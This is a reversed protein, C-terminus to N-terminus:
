ELLKSKLKDIEFRSLGKALLYNEITEYKKRLYTLVMEMYEPKVYLLFNPIGDPITKAIKIMEYLYVNSVEYDAYIDIDSVGALLLLIASIIGTRDKGEQCHFLINSDSNAMTQFINTIAQRNELMDYYNRIVDDESYPVEFQVSLPFNYCSFRSDKEFANPSKSVVNENRLDIITKFNEKVLFIKTEDSIKCPADSRIFRGYQIIGGSVTPTYGIDRTNYTGTWNYRQM